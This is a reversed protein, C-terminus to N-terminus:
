LISLLSTLLVDVTFTINQGEFAYVQLNLFKDQLLFSGFCLVLVHCIISTDFEVLSVCIVTSIM